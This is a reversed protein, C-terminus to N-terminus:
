SDNDLLDKIYEVPIAYSIDSPDTLMAEKTKKVFVSNIVGIIVGTDVDYVPSGSNGPYATADLQYVNFPKRTRKIQEATLTKSSLAPIVMPTVASIIGRHTVQTLGLVLGIPFGTFAVEEGERLLSDDGLTLPSLESGIFELLALDHEPDSALIKALRVSSSKGRGAFVALLEKKKTDLPKEIVHYNTIVQRGNGVVFGTGKFTLPSSGGGLRKDPFVSGIGVVSGRVQDITDPLGSLLQEGPVATLIFVLLFKQPLRMAVSMQRQIWEDSCTVNILFFDSYDAVLEAM